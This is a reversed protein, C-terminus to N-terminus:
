ISTKRTNNGPEVGVVCLWKSDPTWDLHGNPIMERNVYIVTPLRMEVIKEEAGGGLAPIVHVAVVGNLASRLFAIWRGDPSWAPSFDNEPNSTLRLPEGRGVLKVYIDFNDQNLGNWSFAVQSGDPSLSPQFEM